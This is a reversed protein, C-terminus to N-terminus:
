FFELNNVLTPFEVLKILTSTLRNILNINTQVIYSLRQLLMVGYSRAYAM